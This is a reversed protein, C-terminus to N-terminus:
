NNYNLLYDELADPISVTIYDCCPETRVYEDEHIVTGDTYVRYKTWGSPQLNDYHTM